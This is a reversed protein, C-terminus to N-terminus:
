CMSLVHVKVIDHEVIVASLLAAIIALNIHWIM